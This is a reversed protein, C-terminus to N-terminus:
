EAETSIEWEKELERYREQDIFNMKRWVQRKIKNNKSASLAVFTGLDERWTAIMDEGYVRYM